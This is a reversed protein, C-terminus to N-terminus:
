YLAKIAGWTTSRMSVPGDFVIWSAGHITGNHGNGSQDLLTNGAGNEITWLALTQSDVTFEVPPIFDGFYRAGESVRIADIRGDYWEDHSNPEPAYAGMGVSFYSGPTDSGVSTEGKLEGNIYVRLELALRDYVGAFHYWTHFAAPVEVSEWGFSSFKVGYRLHGSTTVAVSQEIHPGNYFVKDHNTTAFPVYIWGEVTDGALLDVSDLPSSHIEVWDNM